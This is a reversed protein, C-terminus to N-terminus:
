NMGIVYIMDFMFSGFYVITVPGIIELMDDAETRDSAKEKETLDEYKINMQRTWRDVCWKPMTWSGDSNFTGKSFLYKMWGSWQKHAFKALKERMIVNLITGRVM